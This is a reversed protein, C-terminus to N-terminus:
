VKYGEDLKVVKKLAGQKLLDSATYTKGQKGKLKRISVAVKSQIQKIQIQNLFIYKTYM